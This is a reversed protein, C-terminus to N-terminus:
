IPIAVVKKSRNVFIVVVVLFLLVTCYTPVPINLIEYRDFLFYQTFVALLFSILSQILKGPFYLGIGINETASVTQMAVCLGGFALLVACLVFRAGPSPLENLYVCGNTLELLGILVSQLAKPLLWLFWKRLFSILVRFILVWGCILSMTKISGSVADPLSLTKMEKMKCIETKNKPLIVATLISSFIHIAWLTWLPAKTNFLNYLMGFIFAPGANNCFGLMRAANEASLYGNRYANEVSRAGVPYGGIFGLLFISEAGQPIGCLRNVPNMIPIHIGTFSSSILITIIMLPFLSPIVVKLSLNLGDIAGNIATKTDLIVVVLCITASIGM